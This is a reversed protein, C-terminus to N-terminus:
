YGFEIVLVAGDTGDTGSTVTASFVVTGDGATTSTGNPRLAGAGGQGVIVPYPTNPIANFHKFGLVGAYGHHGDTGSRNTDSGIFSGNLGDFIRHVGGQGQIGGRGYEVGDFLHGRWDWHNSNRNSINITDIATENDVGRMRFGGVGGRGGWGILMGGFFSNSGTQGGNGDVGLVSSGVGIGGTLELFGRAGSGGGGGGGVGIVLLYSSQSSTTFTGDADFVECRVDSFDCFANMSAGISLMTSETLPSEHDLEVDYFKRTSPTIKQGAM